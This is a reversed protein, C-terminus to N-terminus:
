MKTKTDENEIKRERGCLEDLSINFFDALKILTFTKQKHIEFFGQLLERVYVITISLYKANGRYMEYVDSIQKVLNLLINECETRKM